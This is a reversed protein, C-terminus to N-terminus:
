FRVVIVSLDNKGKIKLHQKRRIICFLGKQSLPVSIKYKKEAVLVKQGFTDIKKEGTTWTSGFHSLIREAKITNADNAKEKM